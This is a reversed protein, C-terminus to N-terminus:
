FNRRSIFDQRDKRRNISLRFFKQAKIAIISENIWNSILTEICSFKRRCCVKWTLTLWSQFPLPFRNLSEKQFKLSPDRQSKSLMNINLPVYLPLYAERHISYFLISQCMMTKQYRDNVARTSSRNSNTIKLYKARQKHSSRIMCLGYLIKYGPSFM